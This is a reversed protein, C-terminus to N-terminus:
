LPFTIAWHLLPTFPGIRQIPHIFVWSSSRLTTRHISILWHSIYVWRRALGGNLRVKQAIRHHGSVRDCAAQRSRRYQTGAQDIFIDRLLVPRRRYQRSQM